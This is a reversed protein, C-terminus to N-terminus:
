HGTGDPVCAPLLPWSHELSIQKGTKPAAQTICERVVTFRDTQFLKNKKVFLKV